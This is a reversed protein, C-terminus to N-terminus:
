FCVFDVVVFYSFCSVCCVGEACFFMSISVLVCLGFALLNFSFHGFLAFHSLFLRCLYQQTQKTSSDVVKCPAQGSTHNGYGTLSRRRLSSKEGKGDLILPV